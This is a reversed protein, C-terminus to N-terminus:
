AVSIADRLEDIAQSWGDLEIQEADGNTRCHVLVGGVIREGTVHELAVAYAALQRRYRAIREARDAGQRWADTKYDVIVYGTESRVLLDVYGELVRDGIPAAVFLERHHESTLAARVAPAALASRALAAVSSELGIIGEAACQAAALGDIDNGDALDCFQLTGHVARGVATGYRGRQWPPLELDVADKRLGEDTAAGPDYLVLDEALRTASVSLRRGAVRLAREREAEW